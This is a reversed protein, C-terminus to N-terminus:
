GLKQKSIGLSPATQHRKLQSNRKKNEAFSIQRHTQQTITNSISTQNKLIGPMKEYEDNLNLSLNENKENNKHASSLNLENGNKKKKCLCNYKKPEVMKKIGIAICSNPFILILLTLGFGVWGLILGSFVGYDWSLCDCNCVCDM